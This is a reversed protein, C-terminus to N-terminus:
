NRRNTREELIWYVRAVIVYIVGFVVAVIWALRTNGLSALILVTATFGVIPIFVQLVRQRKM